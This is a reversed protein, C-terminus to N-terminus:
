QKQRPDLADTLGEGLLNFITVTIFIAMGPFIALWWASFKDRSLKLLSGWTVQDDPVGVGIFSLFSETLIASAIGFAVAILVPALANPIAHRMIIRFESYGFAQAAEIYELRRVRLLEARIFKAIGTWSVVGIIVMVYVLSPKEIIAIIALILILVPVSNVVEILRMILIDLTVVVRRGLIPIKKLPIVLLNALGFIAIFIGLTIGLQGFLAGEGLADGFTYGRVVFAYFISFIFALINMIMRIISVKFRDDGFYGSLAGFFIGILTAISMAILGVLMATRTGHIMGSAVDQGLNDTGLYHWGNNKGIKQEDFPGVFKTNKYDKTTPSYTILPFVVSEYDQELWKTYVFKEDWQAMGMDVLYQRFVPFYTEGDVNCYLPRENAIFDAFIALFVIVYFFRLSWVALRNRRFQRRVISWYDQGEEESRNEIAKAVEDQKKKGFFMM